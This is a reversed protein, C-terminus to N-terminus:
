GHDPALVFGHLRYVGAERYHFLLEIFIECPPAVNFTPRSQWTRSTLYTGPISAHRKPVAM